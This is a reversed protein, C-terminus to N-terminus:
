VKGFLPLTESVAPEVWPELCAPDDNGPSGVRPSVATLVLEGQPLPKIMALAEEISGGLWADLQSPLLIVPMRDHITAIDDNAATTVVAFSRLWEGTAPNQWNDYVGALLVLGSDPPHCWFPRRKGKAGGWEYFGTSPVVCRKKAFAGRFAPTSVITEGRANINRGPLAEKAWSPVLGFRALSLRRSGEKVRVIPVVDTPAVNYRVRYAEALAPDPAIDLADILEDYDVDCVFRGCM